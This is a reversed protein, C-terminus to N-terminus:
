PWRRGTRSHPPYRFVMSRPMHVDMLLLDPRANSLLELAREGSDAEACVEFGDMLEITARAAERFAAEAILVRVPMGRAHAPSGDPARRGASWIWPHGM